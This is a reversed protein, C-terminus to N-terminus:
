PCYACSVPLLELDSGMKASRLALFFLDQTNRRVEQKTDTISFGM